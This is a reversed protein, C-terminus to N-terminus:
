PTSMAAANIRVNDFRAQMTAEVRQAPLSGQAPCNAPTNEVRLAYDRNGERRSAPAPYGVYRNEATIGGGSVSFLVRNGGPQHTITLLHARGLRWARDFVVSGLDDAVM